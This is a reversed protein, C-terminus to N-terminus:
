LLHLLLGKPQHHSQRHRRRRSQRSQEEPMMECSLSVNSQDAEIVSLQSSPGANTLFSIKVVPRSIVILHTRQEPRGQGVSNTLVCSYDGANDRSVNAIDVVVSTGTVAYDMVKEKYDHYIQINNLDDPFSKYYCVITANSGEDVLLKRDKMTVVPPYKVSITYQDVHSGPVM